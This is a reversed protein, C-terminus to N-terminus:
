GRRLSGSASASSATSLRAHRQPAVRQGELLTEIEYVERLEYEELDETKQGFVAWAIEEVRGLHPNRDVM